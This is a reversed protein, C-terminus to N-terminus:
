RSVVPRCRGQLEAGSGLPDGNIDKWEYAPWPGITSQTFTAALSLTPSPSLIAFVEYQQDCYWFV